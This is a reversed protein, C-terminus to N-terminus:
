QGTHLGLETQGAASVPRQAQREVAMRCRVDQLRGGRGTVMLPLEEKGLQGFVLGKAEAQRCM